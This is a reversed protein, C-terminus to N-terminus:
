PELAFMLLLTRQLVSFNDDSLLYILTEGNAGQRVAVCEFNDLILPLRLTAIERGELVAGPQIAAAPVETLRIAPAGPPEFFREVVVLGGDPLRAAATPKFRPAPRWALGHWRGGRYLYAAVGDEHEQEETLALVAGDALVALAEIGGNEPAEALGAPTPFAEAPGAPATGDLRYRWIRHTREFAVLATGDPLLALSEADRWMKSSLLRGDLGTLPGVRAQDLDRLRGDEDYVLRGTLWHGRDSVALIRRGEDTVLLGSFGGVRSDDAVIELGGRWRLHGIRDRSPDEANLRRAFVSLEVPEAWATGTLGAAALALCLTGLLSRVPHASRTLRAVATCGAFTFWRPVFARLLDPLLHALM